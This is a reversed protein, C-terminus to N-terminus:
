RVRGRGSSRSDPRRGQNHAARLGTAPGEGRSGSRGRGNDKTETRNDSEKEGLSRRGVARLARLEAQRVPRSTGVRLGQLNLPGLKTRVLREVVFGLSEMMRHIQRNKGQELVIEYLAMDESSDIFRVSKAQLFEGADEIGKKLQAINASSLEGSLMETTDTRKSEGGQWPPPPGARLSPPTTITSSRSIWVRYTKAVGYRPHALRAALYGDNTVLLLGESDRDLRGVPFVREEVKPLLSLFSRRGRPDSCTCLVDRPKNLIYYVHREVMLPKGDVRIKQNNPDVTVGQQTVAQGDVFVRGATILEECHRRSGLGCSALYKNLRVQSKRQVRGARAAQGRSRTNKGAAQKKPWRSPKQYAM